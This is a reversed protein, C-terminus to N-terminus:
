SLATRDMSSCLWCEEGTCRYVAMDLSKGQLPLAKEEFMCIFVHFLPNGNVATRNPVTM